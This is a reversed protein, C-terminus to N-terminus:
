LVYNDGDLLSVFYLGAGGGSYKIRATADFVEMQTVKVVRIFARFEEAEIM